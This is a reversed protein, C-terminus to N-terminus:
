SAREFLVSESGRHIRRTAGESDISVAVWAGRARVSRRKIRERGDPLRAILRAALADDVSMRPSAGPRPLVPSSTLDVEDVADLLTAVEGRADLSPLHHRGQEFPTVLWRRGPEPPDGALSATQAGASGHHPVKLVDHLAMAPPPPALREWETAPVDAGLLMRTEGWTLRLAISLQNPETSRGEFLERARHSAPHLVELAVPGLHEVDSTAPTWRSGPVGAWYAAISSYASEIAAKTLQHRLDQSKTWNEGRDAFPQLCGVKQPQLREILAEFGEAHDGHPHTLLVHTAVEGRLQILEVLPLLPETAPPAVLSDVALWSGDPARVGISEGYGPGFAVLTLYEDEIAGALASLEDSGTL